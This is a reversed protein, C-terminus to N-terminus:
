IIGLDINWPYSIWDQLTHVYFLAFLPNGLSISSESLTFFVCSILSSYFYMNSRSLFYMLWHTFICLIGSGNLRFWLLTLRRTFSSWACEHFNIEQVEGRSMIMMESRMKVFLFWIAGARILKWPINNHHSLWGRMGHKKERRFECLRQCKYTSHPHSATCAHTQTKLSWYLCYVPDGSPVATSM